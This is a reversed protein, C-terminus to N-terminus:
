GPETIFKIFRRGRDTARSQVMGHGSMTVHMFQGQHILGDSQLDRVIQDYTDRQGSLEPVCYEILTSVGGVGWGPYHLNNKEMWGVPRDFVAMVRLHWPTLQDILRLFMMQEDEHPQNPLPSNFVANRLAELKIRQHNRIAIQSAQMVVTVFTDNIALKEPTADAVKEQIREIVSALEKLWAQKRKDIPSSFINEFAVQLPGGAVPIASIMARAVEHAVDAINKSDPLQEM